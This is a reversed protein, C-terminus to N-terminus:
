KMGDSISGGRGGAAEGDGGPGGPKPYSPGNGDHYSKKRKEM